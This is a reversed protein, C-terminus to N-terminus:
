GPEVAAIVHFTDATVDGEAYAPVFGRPNLDAARLLGEMEDVAFSRNSQREAGRSWGGDARLEILEYAVHMVNGDMETESIRVLATGDAAAWRRVRLPAAGATLAPAHLFEIAARGGEALHSRISRLAATVGDDSQPYGISDFLCTVADFPDGPVDLERMDQEHWDIESSRGRAHELLDPSYDVGTVRWGLRAFEAAHRGTGCAVDLLRGREGGGGALLADVFRAEDAYPKEGYILDYWAAHLGSYTNRM